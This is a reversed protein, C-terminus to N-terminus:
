GHGVSALLANAESSSRLVHVIAHQGHHEILERERRPETRRKEVVRGAVTWEARIRGWHTESCGDPLVTGSPRRIGRRVARGFCVPWPTDLVVVTDALELRLPLTDSYNGDAIWRSGALAQRQIDDWEGDSPATWGPQWFELDLHVLPLGTRAALAKSFTSKGSGPLGTVIVREGISRQEAM